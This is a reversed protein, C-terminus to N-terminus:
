TNKANELFTPTGFHGEPDEFIDLLKRCLGAIHVGDICRHDFTVQCRLRRRVVVQGDEAVPKEKVAGLAVYLPVRTYPVLPVYAEDLGLTGLNTIMISGFPDRPMGFPSLDLNLTYGLFSLADLFTNLLPAPIWRFTQRGREVPTDMRARAVALHEEFETAIEQLSKTEAEHITFGTLDVKDAGDATLAVHSFVGVHKREYLRNFRLISNAQPCHELCLAAAKVMLHSVTCR